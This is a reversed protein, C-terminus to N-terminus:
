KKLIKFKHINQKSEIIIFYMGSSLNSIDLNGTNAEFSTKVIKGSIDVVSIGEILAKDIGEIKVVNKAPNPYVKIQNSNTVENVSLIADSVTFTKHHAKCDKYATLTITYSSNTTFDFTHNVTESTSTTGDGFDWLISDYNESTNTFSITTPATVEYDFDATSTFTTILSDDLDNFTTEEAQNRIYQADAETLGGVIASNNIKQKFLGNYFSCAALYSGKSNPHIDGYNVWLFYSDDNIMSNRFCEGVPVFPIGTENAMQILNNKILTQRDLYQNFSADTNNVIGYSIEYYHISACPSYKLISDRLQKARGITEEIPYSFGPSENSGPQLIVYDWVEDRFKQYLTNNAVHHVFGTGGPTHQDVTVHYGQEDSLQEFTQPMDNYYTLSNGVFLVKLPDDTTQASSLLSAFICWLFLLLLKNM